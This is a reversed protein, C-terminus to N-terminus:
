EVKELPGYLNIVTSNWTGDQRMRVGRFYPFGVCMHAETIKFREKNGLCSDVIDGVKFPAEALAAETYIAKARLYERHATNM